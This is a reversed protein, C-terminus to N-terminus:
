GAGPPPLGFARALGQATGKPMRELDFHLVVSGSLPAKLANRAGGIVSLGGSRELAQLGSRSLQLASALFRDLRQGTPGEAHITLAIRSWNASGPEALRKTLHLETPLLVQQAHRRLAALDCARARVWAPDNTEMADLEAPPVEAVPVRSLVPLNWTRDCVTCTYILWADLRRGNANLRVKGSCRFPRAKGCTGCHRQPEPFSLPSVQWFVTATGTMPDQGEM